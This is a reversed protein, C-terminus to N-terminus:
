KGYSEGDEEHSHNRTIQVSSITAHLNVLDTTNLYQLGAEINDLISDRDHGGWLNGETHLPTKYLEKDM